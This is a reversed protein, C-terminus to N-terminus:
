ISMPKRRSYEMRTVKGGELSRRGRGALDTAKEKREVDEGRKTMKGERGDDEGLARGDDEM